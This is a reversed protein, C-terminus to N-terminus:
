GITIRGSIFVELDDDTFEKCAKYIELTGVDSGGSLLRSLALIALDSVLETKNKRFSAVLEMFVNIPDARFAELFEPTYEIVMNGTEEDMHLQRFIRFESFYYQKM